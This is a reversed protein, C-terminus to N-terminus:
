EGLEDINVQCKDLTDEEQTLINGSLAANYLFMQEVRIRTNYIKEKIEDDGFVSHKQSYKIDDLLSMDKTKKNIWYTECSLAYDEFKSSEMTPNELIKQASWAYQMALATKTKPFEPDKAFRKIVYIEVDDRVGNNNVDIGLLTSNNLTEDPEPPLKYGNIEKYVTISIQTSTLNNYKAQLTTTGESLPTITGKDISVISSNNIIWETDDTIDITSNDDYTASVSISTQNNENLQINSKNLAISTVKPQNDDVRFTYKIHKTKVSSAYRYLSCKKVDDYFYSCMKHSYKQFRNTHKDSFDQLKLEQVKVKYTGSELAESPTFLLTKEDKLTTSGRVEKDKSHKNESKLTITHKHVSKETIPLDFVIEVTSEASVEQASVEPSVSLLHEQSLGDKAQLSLTLIFFLLAKTFFHSM